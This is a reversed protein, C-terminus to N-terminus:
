TDFAISPPTVWGGTFGPSFNVYSKTAWPGATPMYWEWVVVGLM